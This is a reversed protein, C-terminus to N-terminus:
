LEDTLRESLYDLFARTRAPVRTRSLILATAEVPPSEWATLVRVLRGSKVDNRCMVNPLMSLGVGDIALERAVAINNVVVKGQVEIFQHKIQNRFTWVGNQRQQDTTVCDHLAFDEVARPTGRRRLYEPSVYVGRTITALRRYILNSEKLPGLQITLDYPDDRPNVERSNVEVEVNVEPYRLVFGAIARSIWGVGFDVPISVRLSGSLGAQLEAANVGIEEIESVLCQVQEYLVSGIETLALGKAGRKLLLAGFHQELQDLRRSITSKSIRLQESARTMSGAEAVECFLRLTNLDLRHHMRTGRVFALRDM